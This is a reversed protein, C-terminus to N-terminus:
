RSTIVQKEEKANHFIAREKEPKDFYTGFFQGLIKETAVTKSLGSEECFQDLQEYVPSALKVNLIKADKKSRPM